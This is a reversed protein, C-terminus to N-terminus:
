GEGAAEQLLETFREVLQREKLSLSQYKRAYLLTHADFEDEPLAAVDPEILSMIYGIHTNTARALKILFEVSPNGVDKTGYDLFKNITQHNVNVFRAFERISMDRRNIEKLLFEGLTVTKM